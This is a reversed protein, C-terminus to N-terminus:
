KGEGLRANQRPSVSTIRQDSVFVAAGKGDLIEVFPADQIGALANGTFAATVAPQRRIKGAPLSRM